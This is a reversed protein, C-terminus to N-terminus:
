RIPCYDTVEAGQLNPVLLSPVKCIRCGCDRYRALEAGVVSEDCVHVFVMLHPFVRTGAGDDEMNDSLAFSVWTCRYHM